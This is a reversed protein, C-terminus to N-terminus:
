AATQAAIMCILNWVVVGCYGANALRMVRDKHYRVAIFALIVTGVKALLVGAVPSWRILAAVVWSAEALGLKLFLITTLFDLVQLYIFLSLPAM